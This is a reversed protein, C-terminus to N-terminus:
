SIGKIIVADAAPAALFNTKTKAKLKIKKFLIETLAAAAGANAAKFYFMNRQRASSLQTLHLHPSSVSCFGKPNILGVFHSKINLM